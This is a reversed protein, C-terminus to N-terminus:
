DDFLGPKRGSAAGTLRREEEPFSSLARYLLKKHLARVWLHSEAKASETYGQVQGLCALDGLVAPAEVITHTKTGWADLRVRGAQIFYLFTGEEGQKYLQEGPWFAMEEALQPMQSVFQESCARFLESVEICKPEFKAGGGIPFGFADLIEGGGFVSRANRYRELAEEYKDEKEAEAMTEPKLAIIDCPETAIILAQSAPAPLGLFHHVGITDGVHLRRTEIGLITIKAEGRLIFLLANGEVISHPSLIVSGEKFYRPAAEKELRSLVPAPVGDFVKLSKIEPCDQGRRWTENDMIADRVESYATIANLLCHRYLILVMTHTVAVVDHARLADIGLINNQFCWDGRSLEVFFLTQPQESRLTGALVVIMSAAPYKAKALHDGPCFLRIDADKHVRMLFKRHLTSGFAPINQLIHWDAEKSAILEQEIERLRIKPVPHGALTDVLRDRRLIQIMAEGQHNVDVQVTRTWDNLTLLQAAGQVSGQYLREIEAGELYVVFTGHIIIFLFDADPEEDVIVVEGPLLWRPEFQKVIADLLRPPADHILDWLLVYSKISELMVHELADYGGMEAYQGRRWASATGALAETPGDVENDARAPPGTVPGLHAPRDLVELKKPPRGLSRVREKQTVGKSRFLEEEPCGELAKLLIHRHLIVVLVPGKARLTGALVVPVGLLALPGVLSGPGLLAQSQPPPPPEPPDQYEQVEELIEEGAPSLLRNEKLVKLAVLAQPDGWLWRWDTTAQGSLDLRGAESAQRLKKMALRFHKPLVVGVLCVQKKKLAEEAEAAALEEVTVPPPIWNEDVESVEEQVEEPPPDRERGEGIWSGSLGPIPKCNRPLVKGGCGPPVEAEVEGRLIMILCDGAVGKKVVTQGDFFYREELGEPLPGSVSTGLANDVVFMSQGEVMMLDMPADGAPRWYLIDRSAKHNLSDIRDIRLSEFFAAEAPWKLRPEEEEEGEPVPLTQSILKQVAERTVFRVRAGDKGARLACTRQESGAGLFETLGECDGRVLTRTICKGGNPADGVLKELTGVLVVVLKNDYDGGYCVYEGPDIVQGRMDASLPPLRDPPLTELTCIEDFDPEYWTERGRDEYEWERVARLLLRKFAPCCGKFVPLNMMLGDDRSWAEGIWGPGVRKRKPKEKKEKL